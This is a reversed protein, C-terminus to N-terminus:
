DEDYQSFKTSIPFFSQLPPQKIKKFSFSLGNMPLPVLIFSNNLNKLGKAM